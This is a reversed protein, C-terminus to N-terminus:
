RSSSQECDLRKHGNDPFKVPEGNLLIRKNLYKHDYIRSGVFEYLERRNGDPKERSSETFGADHWCVIRYVAKVVGDVLALAERYRSDPKRVDKHVRHWFQRAADYLENEKMESRYTAKISVAFYSEGSQIDITESGYRDIVDQIAMRGYETKSGRVKNSLHELGLADIVSSEINLAEDENVIGHRLIIIQPARQHDELTEDSFIARIIDAKENERPESLHQFVRDEKGKGVYFTKNDRPDVLLYVYYQLADSVEKDFRYKYLRTSKM